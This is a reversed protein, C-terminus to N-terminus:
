KKSYKESFAFRWRVLASFRRCSEHQWIYRMVAWWLMQVVKPWKRLNNAFYIFDGGVSKKKRQSSVIKAVRIYECGPSLWHFLKSLCFNEINEVFCANIIPDDLGGGENLNTCSMISHNNERFSRGPSVFTLYIRCNKAMKNVNYRKLYPLLKWFQPFKQM